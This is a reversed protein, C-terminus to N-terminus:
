EASGVFLTKFDGGEFVTVVMPISIQRKQGFYPTGESDEVQDGHPCHVDVASGEDPGPSKGGSRKEGEDDWPFLASPSDGSGDGGRLGVCIGRECSFEFLRDPGCGRVAVDLGDQEDVFDEAKSFAVVFM